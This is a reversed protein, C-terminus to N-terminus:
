ARRRRLRWLGGLALVVMLVPPAVGTSACGSGQFWAEGPVPLPIVDVTITVQAPQNVQPAVTNSVVTDGSALTTGSGGADVTMSVPIYPADGTLKLTYGAAWVQFEVTGDATSVASVPLGNADLISAGASDLLFVEQGSVPEGNSLSVVKARLQTGCNDFDPSNEVTTRLVQDTFSTTGAETAFSGKVTVVPEQPVALGPSAPCVLPAEALEWCLQPPAGTTVRFAGEPVVRTDTLGAVAVDFTPSDGAVAPSLESLDVTADVSSLPVDIWGPIAAGKSDWVTLMASAYQSRAPATLRFSKYQYIRSAPDCSLRPIGTSAKFTLHRVGKTCDQTGTRIDWSRIVGDHSNTWLCDPLEPDLTATYFQGVGIPFGRSCWDDAAMDWCFAANGRRWAARTGLSTASEEPPYAAISEAFRSPLTHASGDLGFCQNSACVNHVIGDAGNVAWVPGVTVAKPWAGACRQWTTSDYCDLHKNLGPLVYLRSGVAAMGGQYFVGSEPLEVGACEAGTAMDLCTIRAVGDRASGLAYMKRGIVVPNMHNDHDAGSAAYRSIVMPTACRAANTLDVCDWALEANAADTTVTPQWLKNSAADIRGTSFLSTQTLPIPFGPCPTGDALMRCMVTAPNNHHHINFIRTYAPDFFVDWGDGESVSPFSSAVMKLSTSVNSIIAQREGEVDDVLFSGHAVV